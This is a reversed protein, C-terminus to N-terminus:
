TLSPLLVAFGQTCEQDECVLNLPDHKHVDTIFVGTLGKSPWWLAGNQTRYNTLVPLFYRTRLPRCARWHNTSVGWSSRWGGPTATLSHPPPHTVHCLLVHLFLAFSRSFVSLSLCLISPFLFHYGVFPCTPITFGPCMCVCVPVYM